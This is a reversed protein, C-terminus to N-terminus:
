PSQDRVVRFASIPRSLGKLRLEGLSETEFEGELLRHTEHGLVIQGPQSVTEELRAAINVTNGLVTYDVRRQSGIDGVVVPGSNLGIRLAIPELNQQARAENWRGIAQQIAIAARVGRIAHDSQWMPAGFFAMVGDGIFKDLTGGNAFIAEVAHTFYGELIEAVAEPEAGESFATFGVLDCFLVTVETRRLERLGSEAAGASRMVEELVAPSHYREMRSRVLREREVQQANRIREIAVACYNALATLLDVDQETFSGAHHQSDVQLVGIIREGSWLPACMAARIQHIRVSENGALRDDTLADYTLLAVRQEMVAELISSSLPVRRRPRLEVRELQRALECRLEGSDTNRLLIFGRDVPLAEFAIETVRQLVEDVSEAHILLRALRTLFGFVQSSYAQDLAERKRKIRHAATVPRHEPDLGYAASFQELPRVITANSLAARAALSTGPNQASAPDAQYSDTAPESEEEVQLKFVGVQLEDGTRVTASDVRTGNLLVGNTSALDVVRWSDQDRRLSCHRRSVSFDSLVVDNASGRGLRVEGGALPASREEGEVTYRLLLM